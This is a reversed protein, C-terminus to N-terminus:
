GVSLAAAAALALGVGLAQLASMRERLFVRALLLTAAPYLSAMVSVIALNGAQAALQFLGNAFADLVGIPIVIVWPFGPVLRPRLIAIGVSVIIVTSLLRGVTATWIGSEAPALGLAALYVGGVMGSVVALVLAIRPARLHESRERGILVVAVLALAMGIFGLLGIGDGLALGIAVPLAAQLVATVTAVIGMPGRTLASYFLVMASIGAVGALLGWLVADWTLTGPVVWLALPLLLAAGVPYTVTLVRLPGVRRSALGGLFDASGWALSSLLALLAAM